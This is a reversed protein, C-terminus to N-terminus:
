QCYNLIFNRYGADAIQNYGATIPHVNNSGILEQVSSNRTNVDKLVAPMNYKSDFVLATNIHEVWASYPAEGKIREYIEAQKLSNRNQLFINPYGEVDAGNIEGLGGNQSPFQPSMLKVEVSPFDARLADIFTYVDDDWTDWESQTRDEGMGNWTLLIYLVQPVALVNDTRYQEFDLVGSFVFPSAENNVYWDWDIGSTGEINQVINGYNDGAPTGGSGTLRRHMENSWTPDAVLSDGVIWYNVTSAPQQVSNRVRITTSATSKIRNNEDYMNVSLSFDGTGTPEFELYRKLDKADTLNSAFHFREWNPFPIMSSYYIQLINGNVMDIFEPLQIVAIAASITGYVDYRILGGPLTAKRFHTETLIKTGVAEIANGEGITTDFEILSHDIDLQTLKVVPKAGITSSQKIDVQAAPVSEGFGANGAAPNFIINNTSTTNAILITGSPSFIALNNVSGAVLKFSLGNVDQKYIHAVANDVTFFSNGSLVIKDDARVDQKFEVRDDFVKAQRSTTTGSVAETGTIVSNFKSLDGTVTVNGEITSNRLEMPQAADLGSVCDGVLTSNYLTINRGININDTIRSNYAELSRINAVSGFDVKSNQVFLFMDRSTRTELGSTSCNTIYITFLSTSELIFSLALNDFRVQIGATITWVGRLIAQSDINTAIGKIVLGDKTIITSPSSPQFFDSNQVIIVDFPSAADHAAQIGEFPFKDSGINADDGNTNVYWTNPETFSLGPDSEIADVLHQGVRAATNVKAVTEDRIIEAQDILEQRSKIAM